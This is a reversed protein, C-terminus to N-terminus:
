LARIEGVIEDDTPAQTTRAVAQLHALDERQLFDSTMEVATQFSRDRGEAYLALQNATETLQSRLKELAKNSATLKDRADTLAEPLDQGALERIKDAEIEDLKGQQKDLEEVLQTLHADLRVPIELLVSYNARADHYNILRAVKGDLFRVLNNAQYDPRGYNRSWLYMFLTDSEFPKGKSFRNEHAQKTKLDARDYVEQAEDRAAKQVQYSPERTLLARAQKALDDLENELKSVQGVIAENDALQTDQDILAASHRDTMTKVTELRAKLINSVQYSLRDAENIVGDRIASHTRYEALGRFLASLSAM